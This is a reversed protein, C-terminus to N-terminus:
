LEEDHNGVGRMEISLVSSESLDDLTHFGCVGDYALLAIHHILRINRLYHLLDSDFFRLIPLNFCMLNIFCIILNISILLSIYTLAISVWQVAKKRITEASLNLITYYRQFTCPVKRPFNSLAYTRQFLFFAKRPLYRYTMAGSFIFSFM